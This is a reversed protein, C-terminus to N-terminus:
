VPHQFKILCPVELFELMDLRGFPVANPREDIPLDTM